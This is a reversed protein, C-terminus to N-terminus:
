WPDDSGTAPVQYGHDAAVADGRVAIEFAEQSAPDMPRTFRFAARYRVREDFDLASVHCRVVQAGGSWQWHGISLHFDVQSGPMLRATAQVLAGGCSLDILRVDRGPRVRATVAAHHEGVACRPFERRDFLRGLIMAGVM